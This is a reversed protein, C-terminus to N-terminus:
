DDIEDPFRGLAVKIKLERGDREITFETERGAPSAGIRRVAEDSDHIEDPGVRRIIDGVRLGAKEAAHGPIIEDVTTGRGDEASTHRIGLFGRAPAPPVRSWITLRSQDDLAALFRGDPSIKPQRVGARDRLCAVRRGTRLDIVNLKLTGEVIATRQDRTVAISGYHQQVARPGLPEVGGRSIRVVSVQHVVLLSGDRLPACSRVLGDAAPISRLESGDRTRFQKLSGDAAVGYISGGDPAFVPGSALGRLILRPEAPREADRLEATGENVTLLSRGDPSYTVTTEELQPFRSLEKRGALDWIQVTGVNADVTALRKGDPSFSISSAAASLEFEKEWPSLRYILLTGRATAAALRRGDPSLALAQFQEEVRRVVGLRAPDFNPGGHSVDLLLLLAPAM